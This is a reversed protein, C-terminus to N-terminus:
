FVWRWPNEQEENRQGQSQKVLNSCCGHCRHFESYWVPRSPISDHEVAWFLRPSAWQNRSLVCLRRHCEHWRTGWLSNVSHVWYEVCVSLCRDVWASFLKAQSYVQGVQGGLLGAFRGRAPLQAEWRRLRSWRRCSMECVVLDLSPPGNSSSKPHLHVATTSWHYNNPPDRLRRTSSYYVLPKRYASFISIIACQM